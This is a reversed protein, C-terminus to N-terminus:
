PGSDVGADPQPCILDLQQGATVAGPTNYSYQLGTVGTHKEVGITASGANNHVSTSDLEMYKYLIGGSESIIVQMNV